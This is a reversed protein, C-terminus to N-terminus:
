NSDKQWFVKRLAWAIVLAALMAMLAWGYHFQQDQSGHIPIIVANTSATSNTDMEIKFGSHEFRDHLCKLKFWAL